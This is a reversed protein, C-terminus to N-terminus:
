SINKQEILFKNKDNVSYYKGYLKKVVLQM